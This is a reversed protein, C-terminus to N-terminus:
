LCIVLIFIGAVHGRYLLELEGIGFTVNSSSAPVYVPFGFDSSAFEEVDDDDFLGPRIVAVSEGRM